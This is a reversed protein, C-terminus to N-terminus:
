AGLSRHTYARQQFREPKSTPGHYRRGVRHTDDSPKRERVGSASPQARQLQMFSNRSGQPSPRRPAAKEQGTGLAWFGASCARANLVWFGTKGSQARLSAPARRAVPLSRVAQLANAVEAATHRAGAPGGKQLGQHLQPKEVLRMLQLHGQPCSRFVRARLRTPM